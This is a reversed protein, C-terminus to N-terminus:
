KWPGHYFPCFDGPCSDKTNRLCRVPHLQLTKSIPDSDFPNSLVIGVQNRNDVTKSTCEARLNAATATLSCSANSCIGSAPASLGLFSYLQASYSFADGGSLTTLASNSGDAYGAPVTSANSPYSKTEVSSEQKQSLGAQLVIGVAGLLVLLVGSVKLPWSDGACVYSLRALPSVSWQALRYTKGVTLRGRPSRSPPSLRLWLSHEVCRTILATCAAINLTALATIAVNPSLTTPKSAPDRPVQILSPIHFIQPKVFLLILLLWSLLTLILLTLNLGIHFARSSHSPM